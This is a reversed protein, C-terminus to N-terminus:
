VITHSMLRIVNQKLILKHNEHGYPYSDNLVDDPDPMRVLEVLVAVGVVEMVVIAVVTTGVEECIVVM